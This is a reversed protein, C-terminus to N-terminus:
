SQFSKIMSSVERKTTRKSLMEIFKSSPVKFLLHETTLNLKFAKLIKFNVSNMRRKGMIPKLSMKLFKNGNMAILRRLEMWILMKNEIELSKLKSGTM